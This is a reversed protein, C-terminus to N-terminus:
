GNSIEKCPPWLLVMLNVFFILPKLFDMNVNSSCVKQLPLALTYANPAPYAMVTLPTDWQQQLKGINATYLLEKTQLLMQDGVKFVMGVQDGDLRRSLQKHLVTAELFHMQQVYQVSHLPSAPTWVETSNDFSFM